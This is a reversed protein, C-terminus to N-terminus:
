SPLQALAWAYDADRMQTTQEGVRHIMGTLLGNFFGAPAAGASAGLRMLVAIANIAGGTIASSAVLVGNVYLFLTTGITYSQVIYDQGYKADTAGGSVTTGTTTHYATARMQESNYNIPVAVRPLGGGEDLSLLNRSAASTSFPRFVATTMYGGAAWAKSAGTLYRTGNGAADFKLCHQNAVRNLFPATAGANSLINGTGFKDNIQKVNDGIQARTAGLDSFMSATDSLDIWFGDGTLAKPVVFPRVRGPRMGKDGWAYCRQDNASSRLADPAREMFLGRIDSHADKVTVPSDLAGRGADQALLTTQPGFAASSGGAALDRYVIDGGRQELEPFGDVSWLVRVGGAAIPAVGEANYKSATVGITAAASFVGAAGIMHKVDMPFYPDGGGDKHGEHTVVHSRGAADFCFAPTNSTEGAPTEYIRFSANMTALTVPFPANVGGFSVLRQNPIDIKYYYAHLRETDFANSRSCAQHILGDGGLIATSAYWRSDNGLDGVYVEAGVTIATGVFTLVRYVLVGNNDITFGGQGNNYTKRILCVMSNDALLVLHPYTYAGVLPPAATWLTEDRPNTSIALKFDANHNGWSVVLRGDANMALGPVGHDDDNVASNAGVNYSRGWTGTAHDYARVRVLRFAGMFVTEYAVFTKNSIADYLSNYQTSTYWASTHGDNSFYGGSNLTLPAPRSIYPLISM